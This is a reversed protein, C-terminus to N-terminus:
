FPIDEGGDHKMDQVSGGDEFEEVPAAQMNAILQQIIPTCTAPVWKDFGSQKLEAILSDKSIGAKTCEGQAQAFNWVAASGNQSPVTRTPIRLRLGGTRKGGFSVNPDVYLEVTRGHWDSSDDGFADCLISANTKNLILPKITGSFYVINEMEKGHESKVEEQVVSRIVAATPHPIDDQALWKSPYMEKMKM